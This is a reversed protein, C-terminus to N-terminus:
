DNFAVVLEAAQIMSGQFNVQPKLIRRIIREGAPLNEDLIMTVIAKMRDDYQKNLLHPIEYGNANLNDMISEAARTLQKHGKINPDINLLNMQIRVAEDAIRLTLTHDTGKQNYASLIQTKMIELQKDALELLKSDLKITEEELNARTKQIESYLEQKSGLLGKRLAIWVIVILIGLVSILLVYYVSRTNLESTNEQMDGLLAKQKNEISRLLYTIGEVKEEIVSSQLRLSDIVIRDRQVKAVQNELIQQLLADHRKMNSIENQIKSVEYSETQTISEAFMATSILLLFIIYISKMVDGFIISPTIVLLIIPKM